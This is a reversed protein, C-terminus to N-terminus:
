RSASSLAISQSTECPNSSFSPARGRSRRIRSPMRAFSASRRREPRGERARVTLTVASAVPNVTRQFFKGAIFGAPIKCIQSSDYINAVLRRETGSKKLEGGIGSHMKNECSSFDGVDPIDLCFVASGRGNCNESNGNEMRVSKLFLETCKQLAPVKGNARWFYRVKEGGRNCKRRNTRKMKQRKWCNM